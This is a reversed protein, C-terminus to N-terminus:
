KVTNETIKLYAKTTNCIGNPCNATDNTYFGPTVVSSVLGPTATNYVVM